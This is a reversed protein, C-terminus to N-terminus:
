YLKGSSDSSIGTKEKCDELQKQCQAKEEDYKKIAEYLKITSETQEKINQTALEIIEELTMFEIEPRGSFSYGDEKGKFYMGSEEPYQTGVMGQIDLYHIANNEIYLCDHSNTGVIHEINTEGCNERIKIIPFLM